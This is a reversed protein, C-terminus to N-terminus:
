DPVMQTMSRVRVLPRSERTAVHHKISKRKRARLVHTLTLMMLDIEREKIERRLDPAKHM